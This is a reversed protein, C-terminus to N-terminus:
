GFLNEPEEAAAAQEVVAEVVAVAEAVPSETEAVPAQTDTLPADAATATVQPQAASATSTAAAEASPKAAVPAVVVPADEDLTCSLQRNEGRTISFEAHVNNPSFGKVGRTELYMVIGAVIENHGISLKM